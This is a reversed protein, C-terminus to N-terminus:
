GLYLDDQWGEWGAGRGGEGKKLMEDKGKEGGGDCEGEELGDELGLLSSFSGDWGGIVDLRRGFSGYGQPLPPVMSYLANYEEEEKDRKRQVRRVSEYYGRMVRGVALYMAAALMVGCLATATFGLVFVAPVTFDLEYRLICNEIHEHFDPASPSSPCIVNANNIRFFFTYFSFSPVTCHLSTSASLQRTCHIPAHPYFITQSQATGGSCHTKSPPFVLPASQSSTSPFLLLFSLILALSAKPLPAM